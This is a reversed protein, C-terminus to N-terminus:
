KGSMDRELEDVVDYLAMVDAKFKQVGISNQMSYAKERYVLKVCLGFRVPDFRQGNETQAGAASPTREAAQQIPKYPKMEEAGSIIASAEAKTLQRFNPLEVVLGRKHLGKIYGIQQETAAYNNSTQM